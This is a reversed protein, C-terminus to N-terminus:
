SGRSFNRHSDSVTGGQTCSGVRLSFFFVQKRGGFYFVAVSIWFGACFSLRRVDCGAVVVVVVVAVV